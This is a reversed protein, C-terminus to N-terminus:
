LAFVVMGNLFIEPTQFTFFLLKSSIDLERQKMTEWTMQSATLPSEKGNKFSTTVLPAYLDMDDVGNGLGTTPKISEDM